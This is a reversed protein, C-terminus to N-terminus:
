YWSLVLVLLLFSFFLFLNIQSRDCMFSVTRCDSNSYSSYSDLVYYKNYVFEFRLLIYLLWLTRVGDDGFSVVIGDREVVVVVLFLMSESVHSQFSIRSRFGCNM